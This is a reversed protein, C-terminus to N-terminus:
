RDLWLCVIPPEIWESTQDWAVGGICLLILVTVKLIIKIVKTFM